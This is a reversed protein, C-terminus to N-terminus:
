WWLSTNGVFYPDLGCVVAEPLCKFGEELFPWEVDLVVSIGESNGKNSLLLDDDLSLRFWLLVFRVGLEGITSENGAM